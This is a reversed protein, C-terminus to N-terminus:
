KYGFVKLFNLKYFDDFKKLFNIQVGFGLKRIFVHLM